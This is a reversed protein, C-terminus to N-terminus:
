LTEPSRILDKKLSLQQFCETGETHKHQYLAAQWKNFYELSSVYVYFGTGGKKTTNFEATSDSIFSLKKKGGVFSVSEM